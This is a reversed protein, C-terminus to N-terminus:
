YFWDHLVSFNTRLWYLIFDVKVKSNLFMIQWGSNEIRSIIIYILMDFIIKQCFIMFHWLGYEMALEQMIFADIKLLPLNKEQKKKLLGNNGM